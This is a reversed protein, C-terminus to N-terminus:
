QKEGEEKKLVALYGSVDVVDSELAVLREDDLAGIVVPASGDLLPVHRTRDTTSDSDLRGIDYVSVDGKVPKLGPEGMIVPIGNKPVNDSILVSLRYQALNLPHKKWKSVCGPHLLFHNVGEKNWDVIFGANFGDIVKHCVGCVPNNNVVWMTYKGERGTKFIVPLNYNNVM